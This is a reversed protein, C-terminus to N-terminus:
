KMQKAGLVPENMDSECAEPFCVDDDVRGDYRGQLLHVEGFLLRPLVARLDPGDDLLFFLGTNLLPVLQTHMNM